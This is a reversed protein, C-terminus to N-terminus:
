RTQIRGQSKWLSNNCCYVDSRVAEIGVYKRLLESFFKKNNM